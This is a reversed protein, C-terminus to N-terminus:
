LAHSQSVAEVSDISDQVTQVIQSCNGCAENAIHTLNNVIDINVASIIKEALLLDQKITENKEAAAAILLSADATNLTAKIGVIAEKLQKEQEPTLCPEDTVKLEDLIAPMAVYTERIPKVEGITPLNAASARTASAAAFLMSVLFLKM